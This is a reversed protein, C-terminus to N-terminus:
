VRSLARKKAKKLELMALTQKHVADPGDAIRLTRLGVLARALPFDGSVGAGGFIQVARDVVRSTLEPVTVKILAIKDRAGRAGLRDIEEACALTLLRASELDSASDAILERCSGHEYLFKGFTQRQSTRELMLEYCRAALGVARMCHHIRGPGLRSQAIEFGRGEGLVVASADLEVNELSVEAHGHPADDYGFVTLPRVCKVGPHPMPVIVVTQYGRKKKMDDSHQQKEREAACSPHSYDMKAVVLALKCRPDMAGTSWWKRGNLIYKVKGDGEIIKTLKTELNRADSSAVDPETMLFASRIKGQLLPMLFRSQQEASGHKLLVEMNGTDPASCNCAEPALASRGMVECLIGYERNSLYKKPVVPIDGVSNNTDILNSPVPHPLFLNWFGLSQAERKLEKMVPPIANESWRDSGSFKEIHAEFETEAPICRDNVFSELKTKLTFIEPPLALLSM